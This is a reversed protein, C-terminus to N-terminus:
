GLGGEQAGSRHHGAALQFEGSDGTEPFPELMDPQPSICEATSVQKVGEANRM